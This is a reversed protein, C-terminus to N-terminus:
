GCVGWEPFFHATWARYLANVVREKFKPGFLLSAVGDDLEGNRERENLSDTVYDAYTECVALLDEPTQADGVDEAVDELVFVNTDAEEDMLLWEYHGPKCTLM